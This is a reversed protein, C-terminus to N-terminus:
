AAQEEASAEVLGDVIRVVRRARAAVNPDHTVLLVTQGNRNLEDFLAMVEGGTGQDLNGTPEDALLLAPETVLARAVAARQRQGGSLQSPLHHGRDTLGVRELIQNARERRETRGLGGYMLPLEINRQVSARPLLNFSQFVFGIFRNRIEALKGAGLGSVEEDALIYRGRTPSDLCGLIHMLTSKGSGSPGVIAVYEGKEIILDIGRLAHVALAGTDYTKWVGELVILPEAM